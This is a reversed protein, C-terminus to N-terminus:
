HPAKRGAVQQIELLPRHRSPFHRPVEIAKTFFFGGQEFDIKARLFHCGSKVTQLGPKKECDVAPGTKTLVYWFGRPAGGGELGCV